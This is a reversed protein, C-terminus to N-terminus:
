LKVPMLVVHVGSAADDVRLPTSPSTWSFVAQAASVALFADTLYEINVGFRIPAVSGAVPVLESGAGVDVTNMSLCLESGSVDVVLPCVSGAGSKAAAVSKLRALATRMQTVDVTVAVANETQLVVDVAPFPADVTRTVCVGGDGFGFILSRNVEHSGVATVGLKRLLRLTKISIVADIEYPWVVGAAVVRTVRVSDTASVLLGQPSSKVHVVAEASGAPASASSACAALVTPLWSFDIPTFAGVNGEGAPLTAALANFEYPPSDSAEVALCSAAATLSVQTNAPLTALFSRLPGPVVLLSGDAADASDITIPATLTTTGDSATLRLVADDAHVSFLVGTYAVLTTSSPMVLAAVSLAEALDGASVVAKM